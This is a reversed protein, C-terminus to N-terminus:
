VWFLANNWNTKWNKYIQNKIAHKENKTNQCFTKAIWKLYKSKIANHQKFKYELLERSLNDIRSKKTSEETQKKIKYDPFTQMKEGEFVNNIAAVLSQENTNFVDIVNCGLKKKSNM